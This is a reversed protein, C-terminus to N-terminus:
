LSLSSVQTLGGFSKNRSYLVALNYLFNFLSIEYILRETTDLEAAGHVAARWAQRDMVLKRLKSLSM